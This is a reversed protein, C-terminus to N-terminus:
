CGDAMLDVSHRQKNLSRQTLARYYRAPQNPKIESLMADPLQLLCCYYAELQGHHLEPLGGGFLQDSRVCCMIYARSIVEQCKRSYWIKAGDKRYPEFARLLSAPQERIWGSNTLDAILEFVTCSELAVGERSAFVSFPQHVQITITVCHRGHPSLVFQMDDVERVLGASCLLRATQLEAGTAGMDFPIAYTYGSKGGVARARLCAVIFHKCRQATDDDGHENALTTPPLQVRYGLNKM